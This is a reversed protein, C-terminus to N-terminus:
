VAAFPVDFADQKGTIKQKVRIRFLTISPNRADSVVTVRVADVDPEQSIQSEAEVALQQRVGAVGLRKGYQPVGVGYNPLNLFAGKRTVLRRIVRKRLQATGEDLAYAGTSSVPFVGLFKADGAQPIPDLQSLYTQPNAIDHSPVPADLTQQRLLRYVGPFTRSTYGPELYAGETSRLQNCSIRYEAPWATFPRDVTVDLVAGFSGELAAREVLIPLVARAAEGDFGVSGPVPVVQFREPNSADNPDLVGTLLPAVNFTLRVVNERIALAGLLRLADDGGAGWPGAGWPLSGWGSTM